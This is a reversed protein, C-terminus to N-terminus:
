RFHEHHYHLAHARWGPHYHEWGHFRGVIVPPAAIWVGGSWYVYQGNSVGVYENGDWTYYDPAYAPAYGVYGTPAPAVPATYCGSLILTLAALLALCLSTKM